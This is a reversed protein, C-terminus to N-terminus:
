RLMGAARYASVARRGVSALDIERAKIRRHHEMLGLAQDNLQAIAQLLARNAAGIPQEQARFSKLLQLRDADFKAIAEFNGTDAALVLDRSLQVALALGADAETGSM